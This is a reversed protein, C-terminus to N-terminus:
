NDTFPLPIYREIDSLALHTEVIAGLTLLDYQILQNELQLLDIFSTGETSYEALLLDIVSQTTAKQDLYLQYRILGDKLDANAQQLASRFQTYLNDRRIDLAEIKLEEERAKARYKERYLPIRVGVRPSLIDRGNHVPAADSRKGVNIYDVGVAFSPRGELTNLKVALAATEQQLSFMRLMPHHDRIDALITGVDYPSTILILTDRVAIPTSDARNLLQNIIATPKAKQNELIALTEELERIRIQIRLVDALNAKGTSVQTTAVSELTKLLDISRQLIVQRAALDYLQFYAQKVQYHLDLRAAAIKEYQISAMSNAVDKRADLTGKWPFMQTLSLRVWQPGLRTEVPLPFVGLGAEPEPLQSVQPAKELAALYERHLAKLELSASDAMQLFDDLSQTLGHHGLAFLLLFPVCYKRLRKM